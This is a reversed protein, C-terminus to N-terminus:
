LLHGQRGPVEPICGQPRLVARNLRDRKSWTSSQGGAAELGTDVNHIMQWHQSELCVEQKLLSPDTEQSGLVSWFIKWKKRRQRAHCIWLQLHPSTPVNRISLLLYWAPLTFCNRHLLWVVSDTNGMPQIAFFFFVVEVAHVFNFFGVPSFFIIIEGRTTCAQTLLHSQLGHHQRTLWQAWSPCSAAQSQSSSCNLSQAQPFGSADWFRCFGVRVM